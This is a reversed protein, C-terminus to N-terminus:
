VMSNRSPVWLWVLTACRAIESTIRPTGHFKAYPFECHFKVYWPIERTIRPTSHFKVYPFECHFKVYWPIERTIRPTGHFKVCPFECHFKVYWPIERTIRTTDHSKTQSFRAISHRITCIRNLLPDYRTLHTLRVVHRTHPVDTNEAFRPSYIFIMVKTRQTDIVHGSIQNEMGRFVDSDSCIRIWGGLTCTVHRSRPVERYTRIKSFYPDTDYLKLVVVCSMERLSFFTLGM